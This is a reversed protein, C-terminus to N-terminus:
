ARTSDKKVREECEVNECWPALILKGEDLHKHIDDFKTIYVLNADREQAAIRLMQAQIDDLRGQITEAINDLSIQAKSGDV